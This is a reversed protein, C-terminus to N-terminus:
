DETPEETNIDECEDYELDAIPQEDDKIIDVYSKKGTRMDEYEFMDLTLELVSAETSSLALEINPQIQGKHGVVHFTEDLGTCDNKMLLIGDFSITKPFRTPDIRLKTVPKKTTYYYYVEVLGSEPISAEHLNIRKKDTDDFTFGGILQSNEDMITQCIRDGKACDDANYLYIGDKLPERKLIIYSGKADKQVELKERKFLDQIVKELEDGTALALMKLDVLPLTFTFQSKKSHDFTMRVANGKGGTVESREASVGLSSGQAYDAFILPIRKKPDNNFARIVFDLVDQIGYLTNEIISM